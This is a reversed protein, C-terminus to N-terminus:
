GRVDHPTLLYQIYSEPNHAQYQLIVSWAMKKSFELIFELSMSQYRAVNLWDVLHQNERLFTESLNQYSSIEKWDVRDKFRAILPESLSQYRSIVSWNLCNEFKELLSESLECVMALQDFDIYDAFEIIMEETLVPLSWKIEKIVNMKALKYVEYVSEMIVDTSYSSKRSVLVNSPTNRDKPLLLSTCLYFCPWLPNYYLFITLGKGSDAM